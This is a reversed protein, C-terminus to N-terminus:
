DPWVFQGLSDSSLNIEYLIENTALQNLMKICPCGFKDNGCRGLSFYKTYVEPLEFPKNLLEDIKNM